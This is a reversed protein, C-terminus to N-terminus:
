SGSTVPPAREGLPTRGVRDASFRPEVVDAFRRPQPGVHVPPQVGDLPQHQHGQQVPHTTARTTAPSPLHSADVTASLAVVDVHDPTVPAAVVFGAILALVALLRTM